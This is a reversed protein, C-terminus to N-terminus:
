SGRLAAPRARRPIPRRVCPTLGRMRVAAGGLDGGTGKECAVPCPYTDPVYPSNGGALGSKKQHWNNGRRRGPASLPHRHARGGRPHPGLEPAPQRARDAHRDQDPLRATRKGIPGPTPGSPSNSARHERLARLCLPPLPITRVSSYGFHTVEVVALWSRQHIVTSVVGSTLRAVAKPLNGPVQSRSSSALWASWGHFLLQNVIRAPLHTPARSGSV